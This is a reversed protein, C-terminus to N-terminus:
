RSSCLLSWMLRLLFTLPRKIHRSGVGESRRGEREGRARNVNHMQLKGRGNYTLMTHEDKVPPKDELKTSKLKERGLQMDNSDGSSHIYLVPHWELYVEM